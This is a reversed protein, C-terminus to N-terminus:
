TQEITWSIYQSVSRGYLRIYQIVHWIIKNGSIIDIYHREINKGLELASGATVQRHVTIAGVTVNLLSTPKSTLQSSLRASVNFHIM